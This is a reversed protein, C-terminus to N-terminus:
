EGKKYNNEPRGDDEWKKINELQWDTLKKAFARFQKGYKEEKEDSWYGDPIHGIEDTLFIQIAMENTVKLRTELPIRKRIREIVSEKNKM